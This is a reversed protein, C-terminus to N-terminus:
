ASSSSYVCVAQWGMKAMMRAGFGGSIKNFHAREEYSLQVPQPTGPTSSQPSDNRLFARQVRTAGFATPLNAPTSSQMTPETKGASRMGLGGRSSSPQPEEPLDKTELTTSSAKAPAFSLKKPATQGSPAFSMKKPGTHSSPAADEADRLSASGIGGRGFGIGIGGRRAPMDVDEEDEEMANADEKAEEEEVEDDMAARTTQKKSPGEDSGSSDDSEEEESSDEEDSSGNEEDMPEAATDPPEEAKMTSKQFVPM